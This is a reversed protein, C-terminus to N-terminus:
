HTVLEDARALVREDVSETRAALPRRLVLVLALTVLAAGLIVGAMPVPSAADRNYYGARWPLRDAEQEREWM